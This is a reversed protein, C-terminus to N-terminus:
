GYESPTSVIKLDLVSYIKRKRAFKRMSIIYNEVVMEWEASITDQGLLLAQYAKIGTM